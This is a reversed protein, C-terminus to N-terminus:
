RDFAFLSSLKNTKATMMDRIITAALQSFVIGNGGFGLAYYINPHIPLTGIYPLGDKTAAFSGGWYFDTKLPIDPFLQAFSKELAKIRAPLVQERKIPSTFEDDKGGMMIRNDHTTRLYLYPTATEWILANKHWVPKQSLPESVLAYTTYLQDIPKPLWSGSEYGCAIILKRAKIRHGNETHLEISRKGKEILMITTRDYVTSNRCDKLLSHTLGYANVAGAHESFLAGEKEFGFLDKVADQDLWELKFGAQKRLLYEKHLDPLDKKYSAYQLSPRHSFEAHPFSKCLAALQDIAESSALWSATAQKHGIKKALEALPTDTEYQLLGTTAATSGMGPHRKDVVVTKIGARDLHWAILAGSIGAGIVVVETSINEELSPYTELLGKDLLWFPYDTKLDM